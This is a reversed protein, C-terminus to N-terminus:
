ISMCTSISVYLFVRYLVECWGVWLSGLEVVLRFYVFPLWPVHVGGTSSGGPMHTQMSDGGVMQLVTVMGSSARWSKWISDHSPGRGGPKVMSVSSTLESYVLMGCLLPM